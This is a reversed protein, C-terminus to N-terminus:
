QLQFCLSYNNFLPNIKFVYYYLLSLIKLQHHYNKTKIQFYLKFIKNAEYPTFYEYFNLIFFLFAHFQLFFSVNVM